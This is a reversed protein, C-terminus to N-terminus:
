LCKQISRSRAAHCPPRVAHCPPARCSLPACPMAPPARLTVPSARLTVPPARVAHCPSARAHGSDLFHLKPTKVLRKLENRHWAPLFALLYMHELSRM